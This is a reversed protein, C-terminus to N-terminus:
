AFRYKGPIPPPEIPLPGLEYRAPSLDLAANLTEDWNLTLGTYASLRGLIATMTSEAVAQAENLPTGSRISNILDIHEQEYPNAAQGRFRWVAGGFPQIWNACNSRGKTGVAAESVNNTCGDIQRCQSFMRAGNPYEYETAFHDYVNGYKSDTRAQRGGLSTAKVPHTGIVWNCVDLSHLHQEVIHDGSLWTFYNWNRLQWEMDSWGPQREIVWIYGQNWNARVELLDGIAGDHLRKVTEVYDAQHRRQTGAVVGLGKEAAIRGAEIVVRVGPPDVAVPKEMFVHKGAKVAAMFQAPRFQPPTALVVYNVEPIALLKECADFGVFCHDPPVPMDVKALQGRCEQLRDEFVDALASIQVGKARISADPLAEETHYGVLPYEVKTGAQLVNLAAGTGRGGCGIIGVRIPDDAAAHSTVVFPASFSAAMGVGALSSTQLFQRRRMAPTLSPNERASM